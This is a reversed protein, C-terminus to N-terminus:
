VNQRTQLAHVKLLWFPQDAAKWLEGQRKMSIKEGNKRLDDGFLQYAIQSNSKPKKLSVTEKKRAEKAQKEALKLAKKAQKENEIAASAVRSAAALKKIAEKVNSDAAAIASTLGSNDM